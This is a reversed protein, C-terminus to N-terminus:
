WVTERETKRTTNTVQNWRPLDRNERWPTDACYPYSSLIRNSGNALCHLRGRFFLLFVIGPSLFWASFYNTDDVVLFSVPRHNSSLIQKLDCYPAYYRRLFSPCKNWKMYTHLTQADFIGTPLKLIRLKWEQYPFCSGISSKSSIPNLCLAKQPCPSCDRAASFWSGCACGFVKRYGPSIGWTLALSVPNTHESYVCKFM